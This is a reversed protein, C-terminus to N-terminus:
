SLDEEIYAFFFFVSRPNHYRLKSLDQVKLGQAYEREDALYPEYAGESRQKKMRREGVGKPVTPEASDRQCSKSKKLRAGTPRSLTTSSGLEPNLLGGASPRSTFAYDYQRPKDTAQNDLSILDLLGRCSDSLSQGTHVPDRHTSPDLPSPDLLSRGVTLLNEAQELERQTRIWVM